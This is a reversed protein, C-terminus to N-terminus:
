CWRRARSQLRTLVKPDRNQPSPAQSSQSEFHLGRKRGTRNQRRLVDGTAFMAKESSSAPTELYTAINPEIRRACASRKKGEQAAM